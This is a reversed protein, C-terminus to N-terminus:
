AWGIALYKHINTVCICSHLGGEQGSKLSLLPCHSDMDTIQPKRFCWPIHNTGLILKFKNIASSSLHLIRPKESTLETSSALYKFKDVQLSSKTWNWGSDLKATSIPACLDNTFFWGSSAPRIEIEQHNEANWKTGILLQYNVIIVLNDVNRGLKDVRRLSITEKSNTWHCYISNRFPIYETNAKLLHYTNCFVKLRM